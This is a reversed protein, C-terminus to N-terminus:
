KASMYRYTASSLEVITNRGAATDSLGSMMVCLVYAGQETFIIAVDNEVDDLEGTKNATVVGSPVGSPIKGTREQQKMYSLISDAGTIEKQYVAKLFGACDVVSTYNDETSSFDLMLRGMHTKSFGHAQCYQNVKEMGTAADGQGLRKVLTNTADNDSVTIMSKMLEDTEGAYSELVKLEEMHEYVCGAVYLKILSASRMQEESLSVYDQTMLDQVYVSVKTGKDQEPQIIAQIESALETMEMPNAAEETDSQVVENETASQFDKKEMDEIESAEKESSTSEPEELRGETVGENEIVNEKKGCGCVCLLSVTLIVGCKWWKNKM